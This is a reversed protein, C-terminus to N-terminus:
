AAGTAVEAFTATEFSFTMAEAREWADGVLRPQRLRARLRASEPELALGDIPWDTPRGTFSTRLDRVELFTARVLRDFPPRGEDYNSHAFVVHLDLRGTTAHTHRDEFRDHSVLRLERVFGDHFANFYEVAERASRADRVELTVM